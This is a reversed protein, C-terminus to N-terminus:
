KKGELFDVDFGAQRRVLGVNGLGFHPRFSRPRHATSRFSARRPRRGLQKTSASAAQEVAAKACRFPPHMLTAASCRASQCGYIELCMSRPTHGPTLGPSFRARLRLRRRRVGAAAASLSVSDELLHGTPDPRM